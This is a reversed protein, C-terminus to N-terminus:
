DYKEGKCADFIAQKEEETILTASVAGPLTNSDDRGLDKRIARFFREGRKTIEEMSMNETSSSTMEAWAELTDGSGHAIMAPRMNKIRKAMEKNTMKREPDTQSVFIEIIEILFADKNRLLWNQREREQNQRQMLITIISPILGAILGLLLQSNDIFLYCILGLLIVIPILWLINKIIRMM